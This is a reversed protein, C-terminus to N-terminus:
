GPRDTKLSQNATILGPEPIDALGLPLTVDGLPHARLRSPDLPNNAVLTNRTNANPIRLQATGSTPNKLEARRWNCLLIMICRVGLSDYLTNPARASVKAVFAAACSRLLWGAPTRDSTVRGASAPGESAALWPWKTQLAAIVAVPTTKLPSYTREAVCM